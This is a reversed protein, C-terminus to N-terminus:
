IIGRRIAQRTYEPSLKGRMSGDMSKWYARSKGCTKCTQATVTVVRNHSTGWFVNTFTMPGMSEHTTKWNHRHFM